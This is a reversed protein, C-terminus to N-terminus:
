YTFPVILSIDIKLTNAPNNIKAVIKYLTKLLIMYLIRRLRQLFNHPESLVAVGNQVLVANFYCRCREDVFCNRGKSSWVRCTHKHVSQAAEISAIGLVFGDLSLEVHQATGQEPTRFIETFDFFRKYFASVTEVDGVYFNM